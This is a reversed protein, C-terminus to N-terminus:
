GHETMGWPQISCSEGQNRSREYTSPLNFGLFLQVFTHALKMGKGLILFGKLKLRTNTSRSHRNLKTHSQVVHVNCVHVSLSIMSLLFWKVVISAM